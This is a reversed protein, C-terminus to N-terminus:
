NLADTDEKTDHELHLINGVFVIMYKYYEESAPKVARKFWAYPDPETSCYGMSNFTEVINQRWSTGRSKLGYLDKDIIMVSGKDLSGFDIGTLMWLKERCKAILYLKGIDCACIDLENLSVIIFDMRIIGRSVMISYTISAPADTKHGNTVLRTKRTFKRDLKIDFVMHTSCYKYGPKIKATQM